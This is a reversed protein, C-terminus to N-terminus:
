LRWPARMARSLMRNADEDGIFEEAVPDWRLKRGIRMAIDAQHCAIDSNAAGEISTVLEAGFRIADLFNRRHDNSRPLRIENMGFTVGLLSKPHAEMGRRSAYIWGETGILLVGRWGPQFEPIERAATKDNMHILRVGNAYTQEARWSEATDYIGEGPFVGTAEIEVPATRDADNAWQAIDVDHIGWAGSVCGLSYDYILTWNRTCREYTYPKWPAPGLWMEYDFGDPVPQAPQNPRYQTGASGVVIDRLEGLLGNRAVECAHRFERASRQQTGFQFVVGYRKVAERLAQAEAVTRGVPKEFYMHKGQRAAEIGILVHWHDPTATVIADIDPRALLERYDNYTACAGDEYRVDVLNKARERHERRVDCVAVMQVEDYQLFRRVHGTGMGGVGIAGMVVRNSPATHGDRGRARAPVVMPATALAM